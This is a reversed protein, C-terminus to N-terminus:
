VKVFWRKKWMTWAILYMVLVFGIAFSLSADVPALGSAQIPAFIAGKLTLGSELKFVGLIRGILGSLAFIFLANMGFVVFPKVWRAMRERAMPLPMADLLWYFLGFVICAWGSMFVSYSPTWLNKNIPILWADGLMGVWLCALGAVMLWM